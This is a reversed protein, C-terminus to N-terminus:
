MIYFIKIIVLGASFFYNSVKLVLRLPKHLRGDLCHHKDTYTDIKGSSLLAITNDEDVKTNYSLAYFNGTYFSLFRFIQNLIFYLVAFIISIDLLMNRRRGKKVLAELFTEELLQYVPLDRVLYYPSFSHLVGSINAPLTGCEPILVSIQPSLPM